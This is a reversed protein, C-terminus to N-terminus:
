TCFYPQSSSAKVQGEEALHVAYAVVASASAPLPCLGSAACFQVFRLFKSGYSAYTGPALSTLLLHLAASLDVGTRQSMLEFQARVVGSWPASHSSAQLVYRPRRAAVASPQVLEFSCGSVAGGERALSLSSLLTDAATAPKRVSSALCRSHAGLPTAACVTKKPLSSSRLSGATNLSVTLVSELLLVPQLLLRAVM